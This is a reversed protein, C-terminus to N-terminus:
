DSPPLGLTERIQNLVEPSKIMEQVIGEFDKHGWKVAREVLMAVPSHPESRRLFDAVEQLTRYAQERSTIRGGGGIAAAMAAPHAATAALPAAGPERVLQVGITDILDALEIFLPADEGFREDCLERLRNLAEMSATAAAATAALREPPTAALAAQWQDGTILGAGVLEQFETQDARIAAANVRQSQEYDLWGYEGLTGGTIPVSKVAALFDRSTGIWSLPRARIAPIIEGEDWGPHLGDWFREVLGRCLDLGASLGAFGETRVLGETLWAALELDKSKERLASECTKVVGRWDASKSEGSLALDADEQRRMEEIQSFTLDEAILRLNSGAPREESIPQLCSEVDIM